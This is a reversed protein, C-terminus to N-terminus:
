KVIPSQGKEKRRHNVAALKDDDLEHLKEEDIYLEWIIEEKEPEDKEDGYLKNLLDKLNNAVFELRYYEYEKEHDPIILEDDEIEFIQEHDWFVITPNEYGDRYDFCLYNGGPDGAFPYVQLPLKDKILEYESLINWESDLNFNLIEGFSKGRLHKTDFSAPVATGNNFLLVLSKFEEPFVIGLRKEVVEISHKNELERVFKWRM